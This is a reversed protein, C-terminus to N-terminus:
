QENDVTSESSNLVGSYLVCGSFLIIIICKYRYLSHKDILQQHELQLM